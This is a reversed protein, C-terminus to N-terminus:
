ERWPGRMETAMGVIGAGTWAWCIGAVVACAWCPWTWGLATSVVLIVVLALTQAAVALAALLPIM